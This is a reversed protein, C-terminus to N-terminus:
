YSNYIISGLDKKKLISVSMGWGSLLITLRHKVASDREQIQEPEGLTMGGGNPFAM